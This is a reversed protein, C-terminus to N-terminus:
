KKGAKKPAAGPKAASPAAIPAAGAKAAGAKPVPSAAGAKPVPSAAGAKPVPSAAGAKPVPSAAGAKPAPSAVGSKPAPSTTGPKLSPTGPKGVPTGPKGVPTGPKLPTGPKSAGPKAAIGPKPSGANLAPSGAKQAQPAAIPEGQPPESKEAADAAPAESVVPLPIPLPEPVITSAQKWIHFIDVKHTTLICRLAMRAAQAKLRLKTAQLETQSKTLDCELKNTREKLLKFQDESAELAIQLTEVQKFTGSGESETDALHLMEGREVIKGLLAVVRDGIRVAQQLGEETGGMQEGAELGVAVGAAIAKTEVSSLLSLLVPMNPDSSPASPQLLSPLFQHLLRLQERLLHLLNHSHSSSPYDTLNLIDQVQGEVRLCATMWDVDVGQSNLLKQLVGRMMMVLDVVDDELTKYTRLKTGLAIERKFIELNKAFLLASSLSPTSCLDSKASLLPQASKALDVSTMVRLTAESVEVLDMVKSLAWSTGEEGVERSRGEESM